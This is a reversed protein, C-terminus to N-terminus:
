VKGRLEQIKQKVEGNKLGKFILVRKIRKGTCRDIYFMASGVKFHEGKKPIRRLKKFIFASINDTKKGGLKMRFMKNIERVGAQGSVEILKRNIRKIHKKDVDYEDSIEGVIEELLDEVTVLGATGGYEDVVIAMHVQKEQFERFLQSIVKHEPVFFPKRSLIKLKAEQRGKNLAELIEMIHVIGVINDKTKKYLPIRSYQWNIIQKLADKLTMTCPLCNMEIRPTMVDEATIDNFQLVNEIMEKESKEVEGGKVSLEVMAKLEEETVLPQRSYFKGGKLFVNTIAELIIIVPYLPYMLAKIIRGLILSLSPAHRTAYAKPTIEGFVLILFTMVGTAIGVGYSGFLNIAIVTALVSAGINVLNNAILITILLRKPDKKLTQLEKAGKKKKKVLARLKSDSVSFIAIESASFIGSLAILLILLLIEGLM